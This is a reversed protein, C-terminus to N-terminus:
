IRYKSDEKIFTYVLVGGVVIGAVFVLVMLGNSKKRYSAFESQTRKQFQESELINFSTRM